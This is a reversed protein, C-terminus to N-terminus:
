SKIQKCRSTRDVTREAIRQELCLSQKSGAIEFRLCNKRGATVQSVWMMGRAGGDLRLM